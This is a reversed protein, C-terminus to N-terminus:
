PPDDVDVDGNGDFNVAVDVDLDVIVNSPAGCAFPFDPPPL